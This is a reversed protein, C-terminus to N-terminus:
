GVTGAMRKLRLAARGPLCLLSMSRVLGLWCDLRRWTFHRWQLRLRSLATRLRRRSTLSRRSELRTVLVEPINACPFRDALRWFLEYDEGLPVGTDYTQGSTLARCRIMCSPHSFPSRYHFCRRIEDWSDPYRTTYLPQRAEDVHDTWAGVVAVEPHRALFALQIPLRGSHNIDGADLRAVADYARAVIWALGTNLAHAVGRNQDHRLLV